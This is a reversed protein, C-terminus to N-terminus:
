SLSTLANHKLFICYIISRIAGFLLHTDGLPQLIKLLLLAVILM